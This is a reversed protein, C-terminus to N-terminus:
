SIGVTFDSWATRLEVGHDPMASPYSGVGESYGSQSSVAHGIQSMCRSPMDARLWRAREPGALERFIEDVKRRFSEHADSM